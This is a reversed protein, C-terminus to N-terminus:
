MVHGHELGATSRYALRWRRQIALRSGRYCGHRLAPWSSKRDLCETCVNGERMPIAAPCFLRYNHLTLVRTSRHGTYRFIAPSLLPFTNHVHVVDPQFRDVEHRIAAASWPNWPTSIAGQLTGLVGKSRISDSFRLFTVVEHGRRKLLEIESEFVVNEGSPASLGYYNHVCLVKM